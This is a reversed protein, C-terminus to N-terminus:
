GHREVADVADALDNFPREVPPFGVVVQRADPQPDPALARLYTNRKGFGSVSNASQGSYNSMCM